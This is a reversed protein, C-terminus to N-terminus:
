IIPIYIYIYKKWRLYKNDWLAISHWPGHKDINSEIYIHKRYICIHLSLGIMWRLGKVAQAKMILMWGSLFRKIPTSPLLKPCAKSSKHKIKPFKIPDVQITMNTTGYKHQKQMDEGNAFLIRFWQNTKQHLKAFIRWWLSGFGPFQFKSMSALSARFLGQTQLM